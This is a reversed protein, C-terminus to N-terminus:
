KGLLFAESGIQQRNHAFLIFGNKPVKIKEKGDIGIIQNKKV